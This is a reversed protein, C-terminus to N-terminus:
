RGYAGDPLDGLDLSYGQSLCFSPPITNNEAASICVLITALELNDSSMWYKRKQDARYLFKQGDNKQGGGFQYGCENM